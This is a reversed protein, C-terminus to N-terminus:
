KKSPFLKMDMEVFDGETSSREAKFPKEWKIRMNKQIITEIQIVADSDAYELLAGYIREAKSLMLGDIAPHEMLEDSEYVCLDVNARRPFTKVSGELAMCRLAHPSFAEVGGDM